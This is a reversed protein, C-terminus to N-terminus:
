FSYVLRIAASGAQSFLLLLREKGKELTANNSIFFDSNFSGPSSLQQKEPM